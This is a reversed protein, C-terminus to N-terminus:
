TRSLVFMFISFVMPFFRMGDTGAADRLMSAVFEYAMEAVSQMRTPVLGRGSTSFILFASAAAVTLGMFLSSNTFSFDMGGVEIPFIKQIQFQHIPDNSM